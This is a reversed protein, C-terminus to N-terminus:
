EDIRQVIGKQPWAAVRTVLCFAATMEMELSRGSAPM